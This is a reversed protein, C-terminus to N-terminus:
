LEVGLIKRFFYGLPISVLVYWWFWNLSSGLFPISVPLSVVDGPFAQAFYPLTIGVLVFTLLMPKMNMKMQKSSLAMMENVVRNAEQPNTKQLEKAKAQKEKMSAKLQRADNQNILFKYFLTILLTIVISALLEEIAVPLGILSM